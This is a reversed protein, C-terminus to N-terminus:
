TQLRVQTKDADDAVAMFAADVVTSDVEAVGAVAILAVAAGAVADGAAVDGVAADGVAIGIVGAADGAEEMVVGVAGAGAAMGILTATAFSLTFFAIIM